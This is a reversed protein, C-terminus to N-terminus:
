KSCSRHPGIFPMWGRGTAVVRRVLRPTLTSGYSVPIADADGPQPVCIMDEFSVSPSDFSGAPMSSWLVRGGGPTQESLWLRGLAAGARSRAAHGFVEADVVQRQALVHDHGMAGVLVPGARRRVVEVLGPGLREGGEGRQRRHGDRTRRIEVITMAGSRGATSSALCAAVTCASEPPRNTMPTEVLQCSSSYAASPTGNAERPARRSSRIPAQRASHDLRHGRREGRRADRELVHDAHGLRAVGVGDGDPVARRERRAQHSPHDGVPRPQIGNMPGRASAAPFSRGRRTVAARLSRRATAAIGRERSTLQRSSARPRGSACARSSSTGARTRAPAVCKRTCALM